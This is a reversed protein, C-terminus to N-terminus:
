LTKIELFMEKQEEIKEESGIVCLEHADLLAQLVDALARIDSQQADLIQDREERIMEASVHNMYLNMSRSGKAAPNMPRDINSITGIIFKNMDRDDVNFNKLYDVVGEYIEMTKELNPDRYSVLYGEGIRNFSSMCGYAGGKVRVNQWLYDYSLIVKLIQLAGTYEVGRDIFNGTRAVYQVKSSTKFGENRKVCHIECPIEAEKEETHLTDAIKAGVRNWLNLISSHAMISYPFILRFAVMVWLTTITWVPLKIFFRKRIFIIFLVLFGASINMEVLTM